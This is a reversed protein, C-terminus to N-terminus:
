GSENLIKKHNEETGEPFQQPMLVYKFYVMVAEMWMEELENNVIM